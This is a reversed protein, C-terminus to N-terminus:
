PESGIADLRALARKAQTEHYQNVLPSTLYERLVANENDIRTLISVINGTVGDWHGTTVNNQLIEEITAIVFMKQSNTLTESVERITGATNVRVTESSSELGQSVMDLADTTGIAFLVRVFRGEAKYREVAVDVIEPNDKAMRALSESATQDNSFFSPRVVQQLLADIASKDFADIEAILEVAKKGYYACGDEPVDPNNQVCYKMNVIFLPIAAKARDGYGVISEMAEERVLGNEDELLLMLQNFSQINDKGVIGLARASCSRILWDTSDSADLVKTIIASNAKKFGMLVNVGTCFAGSDQTTLSRLIIEYMESDRLGRQLIEATAKHRLSRNKDSLHVILEENTKDEIAGVHRDALQYIAIAIALVFAVAIFSTRKNSGFITRM